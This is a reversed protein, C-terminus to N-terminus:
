LGANGHRLMMMVIVVVSFSLQCSGYMPTGALQNEWVASTHM